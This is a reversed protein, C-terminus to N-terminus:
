KKVGRVVAVHRDRDRDRDGGWRPLTRSAPMHGLIKKGRDTEELGSDSSAWRGLSVSEPVRTPPPCACCPQNTAGPSLSM